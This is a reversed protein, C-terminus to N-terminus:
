NSQSPCKLGINFLYPSLTCSQRTGSKLLIAELKEGSLKVNAVPQSNMPFLLFDLIAFVIRLLLLVKLSDGDRVEFQIVSFYHYFKM